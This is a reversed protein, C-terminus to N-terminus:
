PVHVWAWVWDANGPEKEVSPLWRRPVNALPWSCGARAFPLRLQVTSGQLAVFALCTARTGYV